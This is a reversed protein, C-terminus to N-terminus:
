PPVSGDAARDFLGDRPKGSRSVKASSYSFYTVRKPNAADNENPGKPIGRLTHFLANNHAAAGMAPDGVWQDKDAEPLPSGALQLSPFKAYEAHYANMAVGVSKTVGRATLNHTHRKVIPIVALVLGM